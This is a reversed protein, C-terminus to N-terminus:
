ACLCGGLRVHRVQLIGKHTALARQCRPTVSVERIQWPLPLGGIYLRPSWKKSSGPLPVACFYPRASLLSLVSWIWVAPWTQFVSLLQLLSRRPEPLSKEIFGDWGGVKARKQMTLCVLTTAVSALMPAQLLLCQTRTAFPLVIVGAVSLAVAGAGAALACSQAPGRMIAVPLTNTPRTRM